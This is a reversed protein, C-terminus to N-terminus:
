CGSVRGLEDNSMWASLMASGLAVCGCLTTSLHDMGTCRERM